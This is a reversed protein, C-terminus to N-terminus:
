MGSTWCEAYGEIAPYIDEVGTALILKKGKWTSGATDEVKFGGEFKTVKTITTEQFAM